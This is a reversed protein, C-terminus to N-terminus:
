VNEEEMNRNIVIVFNLPSLILSQVFFNDVIGVENFIVKQDEKFSYYINQDKSTNFLIALEQGKALHYTIKLGKNDLNEFTLTENIKLYNDLRFCSYKKRIKILDALYRLLSRRENLVDFDYQNYKDGMNYTNDANYKTLGVEQGMHIFPVGCALVTLANGLKLVRLNQENNKGYTLAIRDYWTGNDHCEIYNISQSPSLFYENRYMGKFAKIFAEQLHNAGLLYGRENGYNNGRFTDRFFDNFFAFSPVSKANEITMKENNPLFTPMNWGEGYLMIDKKLARLTTEIMKSTEIDIIGLLDFRFGDVDYFEVFFKLTDLIIKRVMPRKTDLDNGCFSGNSFHNHERRFYYNPVIKQFVSQEYEYVHNFVVDLNVRIGAQHLNSVLHKFEQIRTTPSHPNISLSGELAMYLYPNYGWNYEQGIRTEDVGCFANVPLLQVHTIGLKKLLDFAIESNKYKQNAMTLGYYTGKYPFDSKNFATFDRVSTEYIIADTYSHFEKLEYKKSQYKALDVVVAHKKNLTVAKAYPDLARIVHGNQSIEYLYEKNELSFNINCVFIGKDERQMLYAQEEDDFVVVKVQYALPVFLKFITHNDVINSGLDDGDYNFEADFEEFDVFNTFDIEYTKEDIVLQYHFGLELNNRLHIEIGEHSQYVREIIDEFSDNKLLKFSQGDLNKVLLINRSKVLCEVM